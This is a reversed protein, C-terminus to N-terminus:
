GEDSGGQASLRVVESKCWEPRQVEWSAPTNHPFVLSAPPQSYRLNVVLGCKACEYEPM